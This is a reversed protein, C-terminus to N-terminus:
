PAEVSRPTSFSAFFSPGPVCHLLFMHRLSFLFPPIAFSSLSPPSSSAFIVVLVPSVLWPIAGGDVVPRDWVPLLVVHLHTNPTHLELGPWLEGGTYFSYGGTWNSGANACPAARTLLRPYLLAPAPQSGGNSHSHVGNMSLPSGTRTKQVFTYLLASTHTNGASVISVGVLRSSATQSPTPLLM